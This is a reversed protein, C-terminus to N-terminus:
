SFNTHIRDKRRETGKQEAKDQITTFNTNYITLPMDIWTSDWRRLDFSNAYTSKLVEMNSVSLKYLLSHVSLNFPLPNYILMKEHMRTTDASLYTVKLVGIDLRPVFLTRYPSKDRSYHYLNVVLLAALSLIFLALLILLIRKAKM